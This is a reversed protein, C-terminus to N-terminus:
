SEQALPLSAALKTGKGAHSEVKLWGDNEQLRDKLNRLGNGAVQRTPDFGRGDDRVTLQVEDKAIVLTVAVNQAQAHKSINALSEKLVMVLEHRVRAPVACSADAETPLELQCSLGAARCFREALDGVFAVLSVANDCRPNTAWSLERLEHTLARAEDALRKLDEGEARGRRRAAELQLAIGTLSAGLDDHLDRAIRSREGAVARQQEVKLLRHQWGLRWGQIAVALGIAGAACLIYFPWTQWFFPTLSFHFTAPVSSWTNHYNAAIVEFTYRGPRLNIYTAARNHTADRWDADVPVLRYRFRARESAVLTTTTYQFEMVHGHGASLQNHLTSVEHGAKEQRGDGYIIEEDAMVQELVVQPPNEHLPLSKPDVVVVGHITPFWLRGDRAKWGAPQNEGGNSESNEMGDPTGIAFPQVSDAHRDAAANLQARDIRYLGHFGSLWLCGADDEMVCNIIKELLGHKRNFAFFSGNRYRTLGNDTGIWLAGEADQHLSWVSDYSLGDRQTFRESKGNAWHVLGNSKTGFWFSGDRDELISRVDFTAPSKSRMQAAPGCLEVNTLGGQQLMILGRTTGLWLRESRDGYLTNISGPLSTAPIVKNFHGELFEFLGQSGKAFWVGNKANPWVCRDQYDPLPEWNDSLEVTDQRICSLGGRDSGVWIAGDTGECVSLVNNDRLRDGVTFTRVCKPHLQVLGEDTGVWLNGEQDATFCIVSRGISAGEPEIREWHAGLWGSAEKQLIPLVPGATTKKKTARDKKNEAFANPYVRAEPPHGSSRLKTADLRFLGAGKVSVWINTSNDEWIGEVTGNLEGPAVDKLAGNILLRVEKGQATWIHGGTDELSPGGGTQPENFGVADNTRIEQADPSVRLWGSTLFTNLWGDEGEHISLVWQSPQLSLRCARLFQRHCVRTIYDDAELWVGGSRSPALKWVKPEPLGDAVTLRDFHHERYSVLGDSTGIWLTGESDEALSSIADNPLEPTNLKTFVTFRLGDFRALGNWTGIWLYGDRTQKMCSIRHQPLGDDTTWRKAHFGPHQLLPAGSPEEM